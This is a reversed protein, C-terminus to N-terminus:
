LRREVSPDGVDASFEAHGSSIVSQALGFQTRKMALTQLGENIGGGIDKGTFRNRAEHLCLHKDLKDFVM